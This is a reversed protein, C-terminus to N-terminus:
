ALLVVFSSHAGISGNSGGAYRRPWADGDRCGKWFPASVITPRPLFREM